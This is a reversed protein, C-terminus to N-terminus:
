GINIMMFTMTNIMIKMIISRCRLCKGLRTRTNEGDLFRTVYKKLRRQEATMAARRRRMCEWSKQTHRKTDAEEWNRRLRYQERRRRRCEEADMMCFCCTANVVHCVHSLVGFIALCYDVSNVEGHLPGNCASTPTRLRNCM